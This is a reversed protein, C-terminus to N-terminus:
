FTRKEQLKSWHISSKLSNMKEGEDKENKRVDM